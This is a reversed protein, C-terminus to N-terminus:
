WLHLRLTLKALVKLNNMDVGNIHTHFYVMIIINTDFEFLYKYELVLASLCKISIVLQQQAPDQSDSSAVVSDKGKTSLAGQEM